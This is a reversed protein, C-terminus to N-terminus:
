REEINGSNLDLGNLKLTRLYITLVKFFKSVSYTGDNVGLYKEFLKVIDTSLTIAKFHPFKKRLSTIRQIDKIRIKGEDDFPVQFHIFM